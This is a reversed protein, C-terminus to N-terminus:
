YVCMILTHIGFSDSDWLGLKELPPKMERGFWEIDPDQIFIHAKDYINARGIEFGVFWMKHPQEDDTIIKIEFPFGKPTEIFAGQDIHEGEFEPTVIPVELERSINNECYPCIKFDKYDIGSKELDCNSLDSESYIYHLDNGDYHKMCIRKTQKRVLKNYTTKCGILTIADYDVSM